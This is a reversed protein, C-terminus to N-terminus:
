APNFVIKIGKGQKHKEFGDLFQELPLIDSILPKTKVKGQGLLALAKKWATWNQSFTGKVTIEKYAIKEFDIEIPKGFLGIQTYKGNKKVVDLGWGAALSSGSCELIVDPGDGCTVEELIKNVDEKQINVAADAGLEKALDLRVQDSSTGCVIVNAGEAKALQLSLLGIPGPGTVVVIDGANIRTLENVGHVCCALPECMVASILDVNDPLKHVREVPVVCYRAFAGNFWFGLGRRNDCLNYSGVRCYRCYGCSSMCTECTVRDGEKFIQVDSGVEDIVGCFEHGMIVPLKMPIKIDDDWVHIDSGCLGAAAVKIRVEKLGPHPDPRDEIQINGKGSKLKVVAKM